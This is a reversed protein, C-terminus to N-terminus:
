LLKQGLVATQHLTCHLVFWVAAPWVSGCSPEARGAGGGTWRVGTRSLLSLMDLRAQTVLQTFVGTAQDRCHLRCVSDSRQFGRWHFLTLGPPHRTACQQDAWLLEGGPCAPVGCVEVPYLETPVCYVCGVRWQKTNNAPDHRWQVAGGCTNSCASWAPLAPLCVGLQLSLVVCVQLM